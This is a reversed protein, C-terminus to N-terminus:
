RHPLPVCRLPELYEPDFEPVEARAKAAPVDLGFKSVTFTRTYKTPNCAFKTFVAIKYM